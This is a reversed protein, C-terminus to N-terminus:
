KPTGFLFEGTKTAAESLRGGVAAGAGGISNGAGTAGTTIADSVSGVLGRKPPPPPAWPGTFANPNNYNSPMETRPPVPGLDPQSLQTANLNGGQKLEDSYQEVYKAFKELYKEDVAPQKKKLAAVWGDEGGEAIANKVGQVGGNYSAIAKELQQPQGDFARMATNLYKAMAPIAISPDMAQEKTIGVDEMALKRFQAIGYAGDKEADPNFSSEMFALAKLMPTTVGEYLTGAQTFVEELEGPIAMVTTDSGPAAGSAGGARSVERDIYWKPLYDFSTEFERKSYEGTRLQNEAEAEAKLDGKFDYPMANPKNAYVFKGDGVQKYQVGDYEAYFTTVPRGDEDLEEKTSTTWKRANPGNYRKDAAEVAFQGQLRDRELNYGQLTAATKEDINADYVRQSMDQQFATDTLERNRKYLTDAAETNWRQRQRELQDM